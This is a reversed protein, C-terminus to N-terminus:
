RFTSNITSNDITTVWWETWMSMRTGTLRTLCMSWIRFISAHVVKLLPCNSKPSFKRQLFKLAAVQDSIMENERVVKVAWGADQIDAIIELFENLEVHEVQPVGDSHLEGSCHKWIHQKISLWDLKWMTYDSFCKRWQADIEGWTSYKFTWGTSQEGLHQQRKRIM